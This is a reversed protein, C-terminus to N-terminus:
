IPPAIANTAAIYKILFSIGTRGPPSLARFHCNDTVDPFGSIFVPSIGQRCFPRASAMFFPWGQRIARDKHFLM